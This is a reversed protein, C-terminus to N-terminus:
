LFSLRCYNKQYYKKYKILFEKKLVKFFYDLANTITNPQASGHCKMVMGDVGMLIAGDIFTNPFLKYPLINGKGLIGLIFSSFGEISKVIINGTFGNTVLLDINGEFLINGEVNGIFNPFRKLLQYCSRLEKSGKHQERGVNLLAIRPNSIGLAQQAAIGLRGFSVIREPSYDVNAGVDIIGLPKKKSPLFALLSPRTIGPLKSMYLSAGAVIAGTNGTSLLGDIKKEKLARIGQVISSSKKTRVTSPSDKMSIVSAKVVNFNINQLSPIKVNKNRPIFLNIDIPCTFSPPMAILSNLWEQPSVEGGLLDIAIRLKLDARKRLSAENQMTDVFDVFETLFERNEM